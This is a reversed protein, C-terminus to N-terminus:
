EIQVRSASWTNREPFYELEVVYASRLKAGFGNQADVYGKVVFNCGGINTANYAQFDATAPARLRGKVFDEAEIHALLRGEIASNCYRSRRMEANEPPSGECRWLLVFIPLWFILCGISAYKSSKPIPAGCQPCSDAKSSVKTKCEACKILAMTPEEHTMCIM